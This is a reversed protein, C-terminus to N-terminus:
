YVELIYREQEKLNEIERAADITEGRTAAETAVIDALAGSIDPVPWTPGCLYFSGGKTVFADILKEKAQKIRDQIYIKQPQDRSFAAGIYTLIGANKYAEFLEGYLYEQRQHRSGLFLYIDGIEYGQAKQWAKEELFAKFPALGTGLGSMIIPAKTDHPLKMVSPKVSVVVEDGASLGSLFKSCQGFRKRGRSDVWDVVVILLHVANPHVKQSSAISYERRKLPAVIEVLQAITPHASSFEHLIDAYTDFDEEARKKLEAAGEASALKELHSKEKPNTAYTALSEYFKKPPKGFIDLNDKLVHYTTKAEEYVDGDERAPISVIEHPDLGYWEIFENVQETSNPAHVGLAEGIAYTLGTGTIDLELHFIHRDYDAPTVRENVQVKSVFNKVSLDPRLESQVGYAEKFTVKKAADVWTLSEPVVNLEQEITGALKNATFSTPYVFSSSLEVTQDVKAWEEPVSASSLGIEAVKEILSAVTAAVLETDVGNATVIKTTIENLTLQPYATKWFAIQQVMTQTRGLTEPNEGIAEYDVTSLRVKKEAISKKAANNLVKEVEEAAHKSSILLTAGNRANELVNYENLIKVDNVFVVDAKQVPYPAELPQHSVRISSEVVGGLTENDHASFYNVAVTPDLSLTHALTAAATASKSTDVDWFTFQKTSESILDSPSSNLLEFVETPTWVTERSYKADAVTPASGNFGYKMLVSTAVDSYLGSHVRSDDVQGQNEVQGLVIIKKTSSPLLRLFEQDLFPSYLRVNVAGVNPLAQVVQSAIVGEVSGFSVIVTEANADGSYEFPRYSTGLSANLNEFTSLIKSSLSGESAKIADYKNSVDVADLVNNTRSTERVGRVGEYVHITPLVRSLATALLAIHQADNVSLSSILGLGLDRSIHAAPLYDTVLKGTETAYDVAAIQFVLPTKYDEELAFQALVPKMYELTASSALVTQVESNIGGRNYLYGLLVSAAGIRSELKHLQPTIGKASKQGFKSWESVASDLDFDEPSYSFISESLSYAIQQILLQASAYFSGELTMIDGSIPFPGSIKAQGNTVRDSKEDISPSM